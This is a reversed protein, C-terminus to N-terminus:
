LKIGVANILRTASESESRVFGAFEPQTIGMPEGGHKAIWDRM